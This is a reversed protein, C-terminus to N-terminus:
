GEKQDLSLSQFVLFATSDHFCLAFTIECLEMYLIFSYWWCSVTVLDFFQVSKKFDLRITSKIGLYDGSHDMKIEPKPRSIGGIFIYSISFLTRPVQM